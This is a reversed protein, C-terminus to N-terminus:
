LGLMIKLGNLNIRIASIKTRSTAFCRSDYCLHELCREFNRPIAIIQIQTLFPVRVLALLMKSLKSKKTCNAITVPVRSITM